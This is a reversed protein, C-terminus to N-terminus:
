RYADKRHSIRVVLVVVEKDHVEYIVRYDGVRIRYTNTTGALKKSGHPRPEVALERIAELIRDALKKPLADLEKDAAKSFKVRYSKV